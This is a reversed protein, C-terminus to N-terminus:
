CNWINTWFIGVLERSGVVRKNYCGSIDADMGPWGADGLDMEEDGGSKDEGYGYVYGHFYRETM